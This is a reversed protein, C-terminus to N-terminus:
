IKLLVNYDPKALFMLRCYDSRTDISPSPRKRMPGGALASLAPWNTSMLPCMGLLVQDLPFCEGHIDSIVALRM